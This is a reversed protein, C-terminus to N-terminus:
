NKQYLDGKTKEIIEELNFIQDRIAAAKEFNKKSAEFKMDKRLQSLIKDQRGRLFLESQKILAAYDKKSIYHACPGLCRQIHYKLCVKRKKSHEYIELNCERYPFLKNLLNLTNKVALGNTFPGYYSAQDKEIKRATYIKPFDDAKDIKIYQYQKDDKLIVNYRPKEKKILNSELLLAELESDAVIYDIKKIKPLMLKKDASLEKNKIFYSNVRKKINKAKGVYLINKKGNKFIYVGPKQPLKTLINNIKNKPLM